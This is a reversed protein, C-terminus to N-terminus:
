FNIGEYKAGDRSFFFMTIPLTATHLVAAVLTANMDMIIITLLRIVGDWGDYYKYILYYILKIGPFEKTNGILVPWWVPGLWANWYFAIFLLGPILFDLWILSEYSSSDGFFEPYPLDM